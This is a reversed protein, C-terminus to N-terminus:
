SQHSGGLAPSFKLIMCAHNMIMIIIVLSNFLVSTLIIIKNYHCNSIGPSLNIEKNYYSLDLCYQLSPAM